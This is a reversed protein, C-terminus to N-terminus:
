QIQFYGQNLSENFIFNLPKKICKICEKVLFYPIEDFRASAKGKLKSVATVIEEESILFSYTFNPYCDGVIQSSRNSGNSRNKEVLEEVKDTFYSNLANAVKQSHTIKELNNQLWIEQHSKGSNGMKKNILQWTMKTPNTACVVLTTGFTM